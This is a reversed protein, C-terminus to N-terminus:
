QNSNRPCRPEQKRGLFFREEKRRRKMENNNTLITQAIFAGSFENL